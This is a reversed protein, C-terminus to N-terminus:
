IEKSTPLQICEEPVGAAEMAIFINSIVDYRHTFQANCRSCDYSTAKDYSTPTEGLDTQNTYGRVWDHKSGYGEGYIDSM